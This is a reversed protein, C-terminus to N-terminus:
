EKIIIRIKSDFCANYIYENDFKLLATNVADDRVETILEGKRFVM